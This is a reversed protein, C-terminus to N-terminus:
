VVANRLAGFNFAALVNGTARDEFLWLQTKQHADRVFWATVEAEPHRELNSVLQSLDEVLPNGGPNLKEDKAINLRIKYAGVLQGAIHVRQDARLSGGDRLAAEIAERHRFVTNSTLWRPMDSM